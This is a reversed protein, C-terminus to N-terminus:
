DFQADRMVAPIEYHSNNHTPKSLNTPISDSKINLFWLKNARIEKGQFLHLSETTNRLKM